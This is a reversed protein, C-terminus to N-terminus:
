FLRNPQVSTVTGTPSLTGWYPSGTLEECSLDLLATAFVPDTAVRKGVAMYLTPTFLTLTKLVVPTTRPEMECFNSQRSASEFFLPCIATRIFTSVTPASKMLGALQITPVGLLAWPTPILFYPLVYVPASM